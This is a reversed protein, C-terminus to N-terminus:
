FCKQINMISIHEIYERVDVWRRFSKGDGSRLTLTLYVSHGQLGSLTAIKKKTM